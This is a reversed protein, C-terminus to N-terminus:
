TLLWKYLKYGGYLTGAAVGAVAAPVAIAIGFGLLGVGGGIATLGSSIGAVGLGVEGAAGIAVLMGTAGLGGGAYAAARGVSRADREDNNLAPDDQLLKKNIAYATGLGSVFTVTIIGATAAFDTIVAGIGTAGIPGKNSSDKKDHSNPGSSSKSKSESNASSSSDTDSKSTGSDERGQQASGQSGAAKHKSFSIADLAKDRSMGRSPGGGTQKNLHYNPEPVLLRERAEIEEKTGNTVILYTFNQPNKNYATQLRENSHSGASLADFHQKMRRTPNDTIGVYGDFGIGSSNEHDRIQYLFHDKETKTTM